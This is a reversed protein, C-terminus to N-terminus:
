RFAKKGYFVRGFSLPSFSFLDVHTALMYMLIYSCNVALYTFIVAFAIKLAWLVYCM